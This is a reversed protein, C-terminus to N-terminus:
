KSIELGWSDSRKSALRDFLELVRPSKQVATGCHKTAAHGFIRSNSESSTQVRVCPPYLSTSTPAETDFRLPRGGEM